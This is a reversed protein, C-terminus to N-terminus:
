DVFLDANAIMMAEITTKESHNRELHIVTQLRRCACAATCAVAGLGLSNDGHWSFRRSEEM